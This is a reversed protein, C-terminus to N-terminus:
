ERGLFTSLIKITRATAGQYKQVVAQARLGMQTRPNPDRLFEKLAFFLEDADRVQVLAQEQLFLAVVDRFNRTHPGVFVPKGYFAPEIINQGGPVTLSKGVFVVEAWNYLTRLQGITDVVVVSDATLRVDAARSFKVAKFGLDEVLRVVDQTREVHRPALVLRITKFEAVLKKYIKLLIEEEGPHTSGAILLRDDKGFNIKPLDAAPPPLNDFKLHGVVSVREQPAGLTLIRRADLSSQMCFHSVGRLIRRLLFSIKQYNRFAKDSIRGNVLVIPVGRSQLALFMNPWIETEVVVYMKPRILHVLKRTMWSFDLPAYIVLGQDQLRERALRYGTPTVTSCIMGYAPFSEKIRKILPLSAEVEGVSVAHVWINDKQKFASRLAAPWCGLRQPFDKHWKRQLMVYPFYVLAYVVFIIDFIFRM